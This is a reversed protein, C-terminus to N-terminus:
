KELMEVVYAEVDDLTKADSAGPYASRMFTLGRETELFAWRMGDALGCPALDRLMLTAGNMEMYSAESYTWPMFIGEMGSKLQSIIGTDEMHSGGLIDIACPALMTIQEGEAIDGQYVREVAVMVLCRVEREGNFDITINSLGSVRGRFVYMAERSFMEEESMGILESKRTDVDAEDYGYSVKATTGVSPQIDGPQPEVTPAPLLPFLIAGLVVLCLCAAAIAGYSWWRKKPVAEGAREVYSADILEMKDLLEQGRM